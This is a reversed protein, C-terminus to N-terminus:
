KGPPFVLLKEAQLGQLRVKWGLLLAKPQICGQLYALFLSALERAVAMGGESPCQVRLERCCEKHRPRKFFSLREKFCDYGMGVPLLISTCLCQLSSIPCSERVVQLRASRCLLGLMFLLQGEKRRMLTKWATRQGM